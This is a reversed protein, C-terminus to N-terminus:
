LFTKKTNFTLKSEKSWNTIRDLDEQLLQSDAISSISKCCKSDDAFLSLSSHIVSLSLDNIYLIFFLPGLISGQPVGSSVPLFNSLTGNVSVCQIRDSLYAEILKWTRGCIGTNWLKQLLNNHCVTDFAKQIDLYVVDSQCSSLLSNFHLLLQQLTSCQRIFGFQNSCIVGSISPYIYNYILRELVKSIICLLSIPRYNNILSRDGSKHIPTIKHVKWEMPLYSQILCQSFLHHVPECLSTACFKLTYAPIEDIGHAKYVTLTSLAKFVDSVSFTIDELVCGPLSFNSADVSTSSKQFVSHFFENFLSAKSQDTTASNSGLSMCHPFSHTGVLSRIFKYIRSDNSFAFKDVLDSEFRSKAELIDKQLDTEAKHLMHERHSPISVRKAKKRLSRVLHLKHKIPGSFWRPYRSPNFVPIFQSSSELIVSKLNAWLYEINNSTFYQEWDLSLLYDNLGVYDGKNPEPSQLSASSENDHSSVSRNPEVSSTSDDPRETSSSSVDSVSSVGVDLNTLSPALNGLSRSSIFAGGTVKGVEREGVFLSSCRISISQIPVGSDKLKNKESFLISREKRQVPSLDRRVYITSPLLNRKSMIFFVDSTSGLTVLIPRPHSADPQFRGIRRCDRILYDETGEDLHSFLRCVENYDHNSRAPWPTGSPQEVVGFVIVNYKR